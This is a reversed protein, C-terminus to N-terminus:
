ARKGTPENAKQGLYREFVTWPNLLGFRLVVRFRDPVAVNKPSMIAREQGWTPWDKCIKPGDQGIKEGDQDRKAGLLPWMKSRVM